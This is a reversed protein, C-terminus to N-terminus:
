IEAKPQKKLCFAVKQQCCATFVVIVQEEAHTYDKSNQARDYNTETAFSV